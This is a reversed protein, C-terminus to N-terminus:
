LRLAVKRRADDQGKRDEGVQVPRIKNTVCFGQVQDYMYITFSNALNLEKKPNRQINLSRITCM